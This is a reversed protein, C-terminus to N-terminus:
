MCRHRFRNTLDYEINTHVYTGLNLLRAVAIVHALASSRAAHMEATAQWPQAHAPLWTQFRWYHAGLCYPPGENVVTQQSGRM